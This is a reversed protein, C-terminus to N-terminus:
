SFIGLCAWFSCESGICLYHDNNKTSKKKDTDDINVAEEKKKEATLHLHANKCAKFQASIEPLLNSPPSNQIISYVRSSCSGNQHLVGYACNFRKHPSVYRQYFTILSLFIRRM